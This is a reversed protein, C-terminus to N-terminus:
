IEGEQIKVSIPNTEKNIIIQFNYEYKENSLEGIGTYKLTLNIDYKQPAESTESFSYYLDENSKIVTSKPLDKSILPECRGGEELWTGLFRGPSEGFNTIKVNYEKSAPNYTAKEAYIYPRNESEFIKESLKNTERAYHATILILIITIFISTITYIKQWRRSELQAYIQTKKDRTRVDKLEPYRKHM